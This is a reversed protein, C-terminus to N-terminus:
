RGPTAAPHAPHHRRTMRWATPLLGMGCLLLALGDGVRAFPTLGTTPQVVGSLVGEVQPPLRAVVSGRPDIQATIGTNAVRLFPRAIELSRMRVIQLRQDIALSNDFWSLNTPNLVLHASEAWRIGYRGVLEEQCILTGIKVTAGRKALVLPEQDDRGASMDKMPISLSNTFWGFGAPSYEGFPMLRMKDYRALNDRGGDPAIQLVSNYGDSNAAATAIGLFVHSTTRQSFQLLRGLTDGPLQNLFTTYATEPTAIIDAPAQLILDTIHRAYQTAHFPDFKRAQIVNAQVLRYSLSPGVPQSWEVLSLACGATLLSAVVAMRFASRGRALAVGGLLSALLLAVFGGLYMGGVPVFGALWTDLTVYGISLPTFGNFLTSRLWEGLTLVAAFALAMHWGSRGAGREALQKTVIGMVACPVATFLALYGLYIATSLTALGTGLGVKTHLTSYMWGHGAAHLGLGFAAGTSFGALGGASLQLLMFLVAYAVIALPVLDFPAWGLVAAAGALGSACILALRPPSWTLM